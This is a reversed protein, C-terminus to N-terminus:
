SVRVAVPKSARQVIEARGGPDPGASTTALWNDPDAAGSAAHRM